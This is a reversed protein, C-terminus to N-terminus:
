AGKGLCLWKGLASVEGGVLSQKKSISSRFRVFVSNRVTKAIAEEPVFGHPILGAHTLFFMPHETVLFHHINFGGFM